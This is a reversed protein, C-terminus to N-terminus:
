RGPSERRAHKEQAPYSLWAVGYSALICAMVCCIAFSFGFTDSVFGWVVAGVGIGIDCALQFLASAGGWHEPPTYRVSVTQNCPSALGLSIGYFVGAVYFAVDRAGGLDFMSCALLILFAVIGSAVAVTFIKIAIVRDMFSKSALRVVIMAVAAITFFMGAGEVGITTGFLGIFYIGFGFAPALVMAPLSGPLAHVEIVKGLARMLAGGAPGDSGDPDAPLNEADAEAGGDAEAGPTKAFAPQEDNQSTAANGDRQTAHLAEWRRRYASTTPLRDPHREYRCGLAFVLAFVASLALGIYLNEPPDTSVLFLALAPGVSMALAQGLGFYGIGEGLRAAPLVDAAAASSATTAIAFGAGQLFRWLIFLADHNSFLPGVTGVLLVVTGVVVATGRRHRDILPGCLLRSCAATISFVAGGIGALTATAGIRSLYVSTGSNAGQGVGFCFLSIAIIGVFAPTWLRDEAGHTQRADGDRTESGM